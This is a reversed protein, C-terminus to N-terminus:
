MNLNYNNTLLVIDILIITNIYFNLTLIFYSITKFESKKLNVIYIFIITSVLKKNM